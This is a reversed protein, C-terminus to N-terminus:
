SVGQIRLAIQKIAEAVEEKLNGTFSEDQTINTYWSSIFTGIIRSFFKEISQDLEQEVEVTEADPSKSPSKVALIAKIFNQVKVIAHENDLLVSLLVAAISALLTLSGLFFSFSSSNKIAVQKVNQVM